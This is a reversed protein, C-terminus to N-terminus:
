EYMDYFQFLYVGGWESDITYDVGDGRLDSLHALLKLPEPSVCGRALRVDERLFITADMNDPDIGFASLQAMYEPSRTGWGGWFMVNTPVGNETNPFMRPDMVM